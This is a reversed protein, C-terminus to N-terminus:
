ARVLKASTLIDRFEAHPMESPAFIYAPAKALRYVLGASVPVHLEGEEYKVLEQPPESYGHPATPLVYTEPQPWLRIGQKSRVTIGEPDLRLKVHAARDALSHVTFTYLAILRESAQFLFLRLGNDLLICEADATDLLFLADPVTLGCNIGIVKSLELMRRLNLTYKTVCGDFSAGWSESSLDAAHFSLGRESLMEDLQWCCARCHLATLLEEKNWSVQQQVLAAELEHLVTQRPDRRGRIWFEPDLSDACDLLFCRDGLSSVAAACYDAAPGKHSGPFPIIILGEVSSLDDLRSYWEEACRSERELYPRLRVDAERAAAGGTMGAYCFGHILFYLKDLRKM